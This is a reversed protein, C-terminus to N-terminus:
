GWLHPWRGRVAELGPQPEFVNGPTPDVSSRGQGLTRMLPGVLLDFVGPLLRFGTSMLLNAPGVAIERRPEDLADVVARAVKEASIVPLPPHGGRGTFTAAQDYIPTNVSGPSVLTVKVNKRARAEIQLTRALGQVAWKSSAYPSMYPTAMKGLVSGLMVLSGEHEGFHRLAARAINATGILNTTVVQDFVDAPIDEFRGYAVVGAAHVVADVRGLREESRRFLKEVADGDGVDTPVALVDRAGRGACEQRTRDLAEESRSALVLRSGQAALRHCAARGIGSSAGTVLVTRGPGAETV